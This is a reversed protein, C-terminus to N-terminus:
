VASTGRATLHCTVVNGTGEYKLKVFNPTQHHSCNLEQDLMGSFRADRVRIIM